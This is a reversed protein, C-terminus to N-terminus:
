SSVFITDRGATRRSAQIRFFGIRRPTIFGGEMARRRGMTGGALRGPRSRRASFIKGAQKVLNGSDEM